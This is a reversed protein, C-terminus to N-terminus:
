PIWVAGFNQRTATVHRMAVLYIIGAKLQHLAQLQATYLLAQLDAGSFDATADAVSELQVGDALRLRSTLATLVEM